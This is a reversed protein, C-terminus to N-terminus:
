KFDNVIFVRFILHKYVDGDTYRFIFDAVVNKLGFCSM